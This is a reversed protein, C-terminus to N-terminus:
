STPNVYWCQYALSLTGYVSCSGEPLQCALLAWRLPLETASHLLWAVPGDPEVNQVYVMGAGLLPCGGASSSGAGETTILSANSLPPQKLFIYPDQLVM